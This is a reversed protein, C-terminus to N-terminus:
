GMGQGEVAQWGGIELCPKRPSWTESSHSMAATATCAAPVELYATFLQPLPPILQYLGTDASETITLAKMHKGIHSILM